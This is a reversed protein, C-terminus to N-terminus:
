QSPHKGSSNDATSLPSEKDLEVGGGGITSESPLTDLADVIFKDNTYVCIDAAITMAKRAIQEAGHDPLDVLARAASLAFMGGSGISLLGNHAEIVDGNGSLCISINEDAALLMADLQRLYKDQRWLKATEVAARLLQGPHEELKAELRELLTLADATSGAFGTLVKGNGIRRVKRANPKVISAGMSVQGDGIM